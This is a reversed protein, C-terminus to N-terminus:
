HNKAAERFDFCIRLHAAEVLPKVSVVKRKDSRCQCLFFHRGVKRCKKAELRSDQYFIRRYPKAKFINNIVLLASRSCAFPHSQSPMKRAEPSGGLPSALSEAQHILYICFEPFSPRWFRRAIICPKRIQPLQKQFSLLILSAPISRNHLIPRHQRQKQPPHILSTSFTSPAPCKAMPIRYAISIKAQLLAVSMTRIIISYLNQPSKKLPSHIM